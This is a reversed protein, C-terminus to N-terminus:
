NLYAFSNRSHNSGMKARKSATLVCCSLSTLVVLEHFIINPIKHARAFGAVESGPVGHSSSSIEHNVRSGNRMGQQRLM